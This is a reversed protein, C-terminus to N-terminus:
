VWKVTHKVLAWNLIVTWELGQESVHSIGILNKDM